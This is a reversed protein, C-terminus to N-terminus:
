HTKKPKLAAVRFPCLNKSTTCLVVQQTETVGLIVCLFFFGSLVFFYSNSVFLGICSTYCDTTAAFLCKELFFDIYIERFSM